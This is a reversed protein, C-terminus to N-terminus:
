KRVSPAESDEAAGEDEGTQWREHRRTNAAAHSLLGSLTVQDNPFNAIGIELPTNTEQDVAQALADVVQEIDACDVEPLLLVYHDESYAIMDCDKIQEALVHGIRADLYRTVARRQMEWLLRNVKVTDNVGDSKITLLTLPREFERARRVERYFEAQSDVFAPFRGQPHMSFVDAVSIEFHRLSRAISLALGYTIGLAVAETVTLPLSAGFVEYGRLWKIVLFQGLVFMMAPVVPADVLRKIAVIAITLFAAYVYVFSALNIPEHYREINYFLLLWGFMIALKVRLGQM